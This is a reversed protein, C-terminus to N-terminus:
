IEKVIITIENISKCNNAITINRMVDENCKEQIYCIVKVGYKIWRRDRETKNFGWLPRM